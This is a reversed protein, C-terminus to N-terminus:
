QNELEFFVDRKINLHGKLTAGQEIVVDDCNVDGVVKGTEKIIIAKSLNCNGKVKGEVVASQSNLDGMIETNPKIHISEKAELNGKIAGGELDASKCTVNGYVRGNFTFHSECIVDGTVEGYLRLNGKINLNGAIVAGQEIVTERVQDVEQTSEKAHMPTEKTLGNNVVREKAAIKEELSSKKEEVNSPRLEVKSEETKDFFKM